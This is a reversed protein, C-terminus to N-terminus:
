GLQDGKPKRRRVTQVLRAFSTRAIPRFPRTSAANLDTLSALEVFRRDLLCKAIRSEDCGLDDAVDSDAPEVWGTRLARDIPEFSAGEAYEWVTGQTNRAPRAFAGFQTFRHTHCYLSRLAARATQLATAPELPAPASQLPQESCDIVAGGQAYFCPALVISPKGLAAAELGITGGTSVVVDADLMLGLSDIKETPEIYHYGRARCWSRYHEASSAGSWGAIQEGWVPHGRVVVQGPTAGLTAISEDILERADGRLEREPEGMMEYRSSPGVLIRPGHGSGPWECRERDPNYTRWESVPRALFRKAFFSAATEAQERRLPQDAFLRQLRHEHRLAQCDTQPFIRLGTDMSGREVCAFRIGALEAARIAARTLDMRGNFVLLADLRESEIWRLLRAAMDAMSGSLRDLMAQARPSELEAPDEARLISRVSTLAELRFDQGAAESASFCRASRVTIETFGRLDGLSCAICHLRGRRLLEMSYCTAAAGDCSLGQVDHGSTRALHGIWALHESHPRFAYASFLGLRM